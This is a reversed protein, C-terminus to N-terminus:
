DNYNSRRQKKTTFEKVEKMTYNRAPVMAGSEVGEKLCMNESLPILKAWRRRSKIM